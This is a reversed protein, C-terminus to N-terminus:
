MPAMQWASRIKHEGRALDRQKNVTAEPVLVLRAFDSM